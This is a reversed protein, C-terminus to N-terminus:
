LRVRQGLVQILGRGKELTERYEELPDSDAVVAGGVQLYVQGAQHILTRIVVNLDFRGDFSFYGLSGAYIERRTPELRSIWEMASIKPAGTMSGAPFLARIVDIGDCRPDLEASVTSVLHHVSPHTEIACLSEVWVGGTRAVRGLDNRVLDVIMVNEARNKASGALVLALYADEMPTFGRPATGKIPCSTVVSGDFCAFRELSFCLIQEAGLDLYASFPEPHQRSLVRFAEWPNGLLRGELRHSLNVEYIDGRGIAELAREVRRGYADRGLPSRLEGALRPPASAVSREPPAELRRRLAAISRGAAGSSVPGPVGGSGADSGALLVEGSRRDYIAAADYFALYIEPLGLAGGPPEALRELTRNLDYSLYGVALGAAPVGALARTRVGHLLSRLTQWPDAQLRRPKRGTILARGARYRFELFPNCGLISFRGRGAVDAGSHLLFPRHTGRLREFDDVPDRGCDLPEACAGFLREGPWAEPAARGPRETSPAVPRLSTADGAEPPLPESLGSNLPGM